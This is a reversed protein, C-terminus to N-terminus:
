GEAHQVLFVVVADLVKAFREAEGELTRLREKCHHYEQLTKGKARILDEESMRLNDCIGWEEAIPMSEGELQELEGPSFGAGQVSGRV